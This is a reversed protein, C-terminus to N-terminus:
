QLFTKQDGLLDKLVSLAAEENTVYAQTQGAMDVVKWFDGAKRMVFAQQPAKAVNAAAQSNSSLVESTKSAAKDEENKKDKVVRFSPKEGVLRPLRQMVHVEDQGWTRSYEKIIKKAETDALPTSAHYFDLSVAWPESEPRWALINKGKRNLTDAAFIIPKGQNDNRAIIRDM